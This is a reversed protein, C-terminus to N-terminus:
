RNLFRMLAHKNTFLASFLHQIFIIFSRHGEIVSTVRDYCLYASSSQDLSQRTPTIRNASVKTTVVPSTDVDKLVASLLVLLVLHASHQFKNM